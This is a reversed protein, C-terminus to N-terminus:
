IGIIRDTIYSLDLDFHADSFRIRDKSVLQRVPKKFPDTVQDILTKKGSSKSNDMTYQQIYLFYIPTISEGSQGSSGVWTNKNATGCLLLHRTVLLALPKM